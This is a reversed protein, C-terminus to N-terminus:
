KKKLRPHFHRSNYIQTLDDIISLEQYRHESERLVDEAQKRETIDRVIHILGVLQLDNGLRPIARVEIHRNLHPEFMEATTPKGTRLSQCSTCISPPEEMGHYCKFCKVFPAGEQLQLGLISKATPNARVINFDMDHVTIMDTVSDFTSEWDDKALAIAEEAKQQASITNQSIRIVIYVFFAGGLFVSGTVLEVPFSLNSILIIDFFLYGAIFFGMLYLIILWKRRFQGSVKELINMAQLFSLFLFIVGILVM